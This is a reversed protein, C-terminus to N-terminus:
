FFTLSPGHDCPISYSGVRFCSRVARVGGFVRPSSFPLFRSYHPGGPYIFGPNPGAGFAFTAILVEASEQGMTVTHAFFFKEDPIPPM